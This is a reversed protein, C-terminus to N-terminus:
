TPGVSNTLWRGRTSSNKTPPLGWARGSSVCVLRKRMKRTRTNGNELRPGKCAQAEWKVAVHNSPGAYCRLFSIGTTRFVEVKSGKWPLSNRGTETKGPKLWAMEGRQCIPALHCACTLQVLCSELRTPPRRLESQSKHDSLREKGM